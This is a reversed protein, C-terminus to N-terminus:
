MDTCSLASPKRGSLVGLKYMAAKREKEYIYVGREIVMGLCTEVSLLPAKPKEAGAANRGGEEDDGWWRVVTLGVVM